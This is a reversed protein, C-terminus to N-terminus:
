ATDWLKSAVTNPISKNISVNYPLYSLGSKTLQLLFQASYTFMIRSFPLENGQSFIENKQTSSCHVFQFSFRFCLCLLCGSRQQPGWGKVTGCLCKRSLCCEAHKVPQACEDRLIFALSQKRRRRWLFIFSTSTFRLFPLSLLFFRYLLFKVETFNSRPTRYGLSEAM